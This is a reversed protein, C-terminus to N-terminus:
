WLDRKSNDKNKYYFTLWRNAFLGIYGWASLVCAIVLLFIGIAQWLHHYFYGLTIFTLATFFLGLGRLFLRLSGQPDQGLKELLKYIL